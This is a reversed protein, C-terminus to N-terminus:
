SPNFARAKWAKIFEKQVVEPVDEWKVEECQSLYDKDFYVHTTVEASEEEGHIFHQVHLDVEDLDHYWHLLMPEGWNGGVVYPMKHRFLTDKM